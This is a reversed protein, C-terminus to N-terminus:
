NPASKVVFVDDPEMRGRTMAIKRFSDNTAISVSATAFSLREWVRLVAGLLGTKGFKAEFLEPCVDHHDFMYPVGRSRYWLALLFILDPPNCGEIADFPHQQWIQRALQVLAM